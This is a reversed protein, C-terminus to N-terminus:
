AWGAQPLSRAALWITLSFPSLIARGLSRIHTLVGVAYKRHTYRGRGM